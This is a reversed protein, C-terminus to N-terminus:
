PQTRDDVSHKKSDMLNEVSGQEFTAFSRLAGHYRKGFVRVKSIIDAQEEVSDHAKALDSQVQLVCDFKKTQHTMASRKNASICLINLVDMIKHVNNRGITADFKATAWYFTSQLVVFSM